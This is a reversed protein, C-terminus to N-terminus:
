WCSHMLLEPYGITETLVEVERVSYKKYSRICEHQLASANPTKLRYTNWSERENTGKSSNKRTSVIVSVEGQYSKM